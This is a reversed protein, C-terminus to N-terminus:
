LNYYRDVLTSASPSCIENMVSPFHIDPSQTPRAAEYQNRILRRSSRGTVSLYKKVTDRNETRLAVAVAIGVNAVGSVNLVRSHSDRRSPHLSLMNVPSKALSCKSKPICYLRRGLAGYHRLTPWNSGHHSPKSLLHVLILLHARPSGYEQGDSLCPPFLTRPRPPPPHIITTGALFARMHM